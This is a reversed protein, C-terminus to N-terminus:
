HFELDDPEAYADVTQEYGLLAANYTTELDAIPSESADVRLDNYFRRDDTSETTVVRVAASGVTLPGDSDANGDGRRSDIGSDTAASLADILREALPDDGFAAGTYRDAIADLATESPLHTGAVTYHDGDRDAAAVCDRGTATVSSSRGVGHLQRGRRVSVEAAGLLVEVADDIAVGDALYRTLRDGLSDDIHGGMAAAGDASVVPALAGIGPVAAAAAVGFRFRRDGDVRYPERVCLSVTM